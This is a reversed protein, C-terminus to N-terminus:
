GFTFHGPELLPSPGNAPLPSIAQSRFLSPGNAALPKTQKLRVLKDEGNIPTM